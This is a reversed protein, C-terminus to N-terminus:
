FGQPGDVEVGSANQVAVTHYSSLRRGRYIQRWAYCSSVASVGLHIWCLLYLQLHIFSSHTSFPRYICRCLQWSQRCPALGWQGFPPWSRLERTRVRDWGNFGFVFKLASYCSAHPFVVNRSQTSDTDLFQKSKANLAIHVMVTIKRQMEEQWRYTYKKERHLLVLYLRM